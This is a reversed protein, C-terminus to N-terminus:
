TGAEIVVSVDDLVRREPSYAFAVDNLRIERELPPLTLAGPQDAIEPSTALLENIRSLAGSAAQVSQGITTLIRVPGFLQGEIGFFAVLGGLTFHGNIVLWAGVGIMTLRLFTGLGGVSMGFLGSFLEMRVRANLLRESARAFRDRERSELGFA